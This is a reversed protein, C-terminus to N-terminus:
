KKAWAGPDIKVLTVMAARVSLHELKRKNWQLRDLNLVVHNILSCHEMLKGEITENCCIFLLGLVNKPTFAMQLASQKTRVVTDLKWFNICFDLWGLLCSMQLKTLM